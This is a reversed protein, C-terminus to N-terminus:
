YPYNEVSATEPKVVKPKEEDVFFLLKRNMATGTKKEGTKKDEYEFERPEETYAIEVEKGIGYGNVLYQTNAKTQSGDQKKLFMAYKIDKDGYESPVTEIINLGIIEGTDKKKIAVTGSILIKKKKIEQNNEM